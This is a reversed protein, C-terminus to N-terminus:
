VRRTEARELDGVDVEIGPEHPDATSPVVDLAPDVGLRECARAGDRHAILQPADAPSV